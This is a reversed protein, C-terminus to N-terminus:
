PDTQVRGQDRREVVREDETSKPVQVGFKCAIETSLKYARVMNAIEADSNLYFTVWEWGPKEVLKSRLGCRVVLFPDHTRLDDM